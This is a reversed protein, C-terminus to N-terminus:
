EDWVVKAGDFVPGDTCVKKYVVENNERVSIVCGCCAGVGCAMVREMSIYIPINYKMCIDVLAKLMLEPGCSYVVDVPNDQLYKEVHETVFGQLGLSGDETCNNMEDCFIDNCTRGGHFITIQNDKRKLEKELLPMPAHGIGGSVLLCHKGNVIEFGNGLPGLLQLEVGASLGALSKTAKGVKKILFSLTDNEVIYISFPRPLMPFKRSPDKIQFFQGPNVIEALGKDQFSLEFYDNNHSTIHQIKLKKFQM